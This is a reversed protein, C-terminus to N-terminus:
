ITLDPPEPTTRCLQQDYYAALWAETHLRCSRIDWPCHKCIQEAYLSSHEDPSMMHADELDIRSRWVASDLQDSSTAGDIVNRQPESANMVYRNLM